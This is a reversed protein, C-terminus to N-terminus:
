EYTPIGDYPLFAEAFNDGVYMGLYYPQEVQYPMSLLSSGLLRAVHRVPKM